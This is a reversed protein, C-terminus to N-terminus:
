ANVAKLHRFPRRTVNADLIRIRRSHMVEHSKLVGLLVALTGMGLSASFAHDERHEADRYEASDRPANSRARKAAAYKRLESRITKLAIRRQEIRDRANM